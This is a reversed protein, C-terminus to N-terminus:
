DLTLMVPLPDSALVDSPVVAGLLRPAIESGDPAVVARQDGSIRQAMPGVCVFVPTGPSPRHEVLVTRWAGDRFVLVVSRLLGTRDDLWGFSIPETEPGYVVVETGGPWAFPDIANHERRAINAREVQDPDRGALWEGIANAGGTDGAGPGVPTANMAKPRGASIFIWVVLSAFVLIPLLLWGTIILNKRM